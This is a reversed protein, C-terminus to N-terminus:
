GPGTGGPKKAEVGEPDIIPTDPDSACGGPQAFGIPLICRSGCAPAQRRKIRYMSIEPISPLVRTYVASAFLFFPTPSLHNENTM